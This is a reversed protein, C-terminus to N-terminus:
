DDRQKYVYRQTRDSWKQFFLMDITKSTYSEGFYEEKNMEDYKVCKPWVNQTSSSVNISASNIM